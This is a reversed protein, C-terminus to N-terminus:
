WPCLPRALLKQFIHALAPKYPCGAGTQQLHSSNDSVVLHLTSVFRRVGWSAVTWYRRHKGAGERCGEGKEEMVEDRFIIRVAVFPIEPWHFGDTDWAKNSRHQLTAIPQKLTNPKNKKEKREKETGKTLGKENHSEILSASM